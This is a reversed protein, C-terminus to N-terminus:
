YSAGKRWKEFEADRKRKTRIWKQYEVTDFKKMQIAYKPNDLPSPYITTFVAKATKELTRQLWVFFLRMKDTDMKKKVLDDMGCQIGYLLKQLRTVDRTEFCKKLADIWNEENSITYLKILDIAGWQRGQAKM